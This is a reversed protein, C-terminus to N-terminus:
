PTGLDIGSGDLSPASGGLAPGGGPLMMGESLPTVARKTRSGFGFASCSSLGCAAVLLLIVVPLKM